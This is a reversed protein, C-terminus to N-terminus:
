QCRESQIPQSHFSEDILCNVLKIAEGSCLRMGPDTQLCKRIFEKAELSVSRTPFELVFESFDRKEDPYPKEGFLMLFSLVGLSWVDVKSDYRERVVEPAFYGPSGVFGYTKEDNELYCAFGFDILKVRKNQGFNDGVSMVNELKVDRHVIGSDHCICLAKLICRLIPFVVSEPFHGDESAELLQCLSYGLKEFVLFVFDDSEYWTEMRLIYKLNGKSKFLELTNIECQVEEERYLPYHKEIKKIVMPMYSKRELVSFIVTRKTDVLIMDVYYLAQVTSPDSIKHNTHTEM